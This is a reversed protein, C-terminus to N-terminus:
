LIILDNIEIESVMGKQGNAQQYFRSVLTGEVAVSIGKSCLEELVSVWKGFATVRHWNKKVKLNGDIDLFEQKTALSFNAVRRGNPLSWIRPDSSMQGILNVHNINIHQTQTISSIITEM